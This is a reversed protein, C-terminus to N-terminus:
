KMNSLYAVVDRIERRTLIASMVPMPSPGNTRQAIDSKNIKKPEPSVDVVIYSDTEEKLTGFYKQGNKLTVQVPGFGPAIRASPDVLAELIQERQLRSGVGRLNPGVNAGPGTGFNHCRTCQAAPHTFAIRQGRRADGGMLADAYLAVPKAGAPRAKDIAELRAILQPDKSARAAEAVDLRIEPAVKGQALQDVLRTLEERGTAGQIRGMAELASQQEAVSGKGVVSALLNATTAGPLNLGVIASLAATRVAPDTDALAGRIVEETRPDGLLGVARAAAIRIEATSGSKAKAYVLNAASTLRLRGVADSLAVQVAPSANAFLSEVIGALATRAATTDRV